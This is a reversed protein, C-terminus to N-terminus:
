VPLRAAAALLAGTAPRDEWVFASDAGLTVGREFIGADTWHVLQAPMADLVENAVVVGSFSEPLSELWSVRPLLQPARKELTARQRARLEGSLELIRYREPLSGMEELELLLDAALAGTGAGPELIEPASRAMIQAVPQALTRGFLPSIEPATVFDGSQGFKMSGGSYYGLGPAYLALDMFRAFSIWGEAAAIQDRILACLAESHALAEPSPAPLTM